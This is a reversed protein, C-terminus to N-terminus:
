IQKAQMMLQLWRDEVWGKCDERCAYNSLSTSEEFIASETQRDNAGFSDMGDSGTKRARTSLILM